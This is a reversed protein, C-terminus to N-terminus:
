PVIRAALHILRPGANRDFISDSKFRRRKLLALRPLIVRRGSEDVGTADHNLVGFIWLLGGWAVGVQDLELSAHRFFYAAAGTRGAACERLRGGRRDRHDPD